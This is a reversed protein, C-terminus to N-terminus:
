LTSQKALFAVLDSPPLFTKEMTARTLVEVLGEKVFRKGVVVRFPYGLLEAETLKSGPSENWRDDLMVDDRGFGAALETAIQETTRSVPDEAKKSGISMVLVRFPAIAEPWVIGHADHSSEVVAAILRTVGMGFCGMEMIKQKGDHDTFTVNFPKSYKQGLYFVHGVEIGRKAQLTGSTCKPCGDCEHAVRFHGVHTTADQGTCTSAAEHLMAVLPNADTAPLSDDIFVQVSDADTFATSSLDTVAQLEEGNFFSKLLLDNVSRDGRVFVIALRQSALDQTEGVSEAFVQCTVGCADDQLTKAVTKWVQTSTMPGQNLVLVGRLTDVTRAVAADDYQYQGGDSGDVLRGIAKEVNAAYDCEDASCSLVGDEGIAALVHFEHSLNGGITGSDAEVKAIPLRLRKRLIVDYAHVVDKYTAIANDLSTDFSYMDKMIFERGRLLGFRPRIEDRFKKGIQYLRLSANSNTYHAAVLSTVSEEHTPALTQTDGRRDQFAMLEPGRTQWRGSTQWLEAPIMLPLDVKNGQIAHMEDDIIAELKRLVRTGLALFSFSGHGSKRIFGGRILLQHSPTAADAPNEKETPIWLQSRRTFAARATTFM